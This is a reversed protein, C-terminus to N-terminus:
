YWTNLSYDIEANKIGKLVEKRISHISTDGWYVCNKRTLFCMLYNVATFIDISALLAFYGPETFEINSWGFRTLGFFSHQAEDAFFTPDVDMKETVLPFCQAFVLMCVALMQEVNYNNSVLSVSLFNVYAHLYMDSMKFVDEGMEQFALRLQLMLSWDVFYTKDLHDEVRRTVVHTLVYTRFNNVRFSGDLQKQNQSVSAATVVALGSLVQYDSPPLCVISNNYGSQYRKKKNHFHKLSTCIDFRFYVALDRVYSIRTDSFYGKPFKPITAFTVDMTCSVQRDTTKGFFTTFYRIRPSLDLYLPKNAKKHQLPLRFISITKLSLHLSQVCLTESGPLKGYLNIVSPSVQLQFISSDKLPFQVGHPVHLEGPFYLGMEEIQIKCFNNFGLWCCNHLYYVALLMSGNLNHYTGDALVVEIGMPNGPEKYEVDCVAGLFVTDSWNDWPQTKDCLSYPGPHVRTRQNPKADKVPLCLAFPDSESWFYQLATFDFCFAEFRMRQLEHPWSSHTNSLQGTSLLKVVLQIQMSVMKDYNPTLGAEYLIEKPAHNYFDSLKKINKLPRQFFATRQRKKPMNDTWVGNIGDVNWIDRRRYPEDDDEAISACLLDESEELAAKWKTTDGIVPNLPIPEDM